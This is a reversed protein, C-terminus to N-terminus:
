WGVGVWRKGHGGGRVGPGVQLALNDCPQWQVVAKVEGEGARVIYKYEVPTSCCCHCTPATIAAPSASPTPHPPPSCYIDSQHFYTHTNFVTSYITLLPAAAAAADSAPLSPPPPSLLQHTVYM